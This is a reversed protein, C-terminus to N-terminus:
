KQKYSPVNKDNIGYMDIVEEYPLTSLDRPQVTKLRATTVAEGPIAVIRFAQNTTIGPFGTLDFQSDIFIAMDLSTYIFNYQVIGEERIIMQPLGIWVPEKIEEDFYAMRYVVIVDEPTVEMGYEEFIIGLGYFGEADPEFNWGGLDLVSTRQADEGAPGTAGPTGPPGPEGEPGPPGEPGECAVGIALTLFFAYHLLKKM